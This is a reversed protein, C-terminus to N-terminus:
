KTQKWLARAEDLYKKITGDDLGWGLKELDERMAKAHPNRAAEPQLGYGGVALGLILKLMTTREKTAASINAQAEEASREVPLDDGDEQQPPHELQDQDIRKQLETKLGDPVDWGSKMLALALYVPHSGIEYKSRGFRQNWDIRSIARSIKVTSEFGSPPSSMTLRLEPYRSPDKGDFLLAAEKVTWKDLRAWYSYDIKTTTRAL